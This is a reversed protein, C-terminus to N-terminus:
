AAVGDDRGCFRCGSREGGGEVWRSMWGGAAQERYAPGM